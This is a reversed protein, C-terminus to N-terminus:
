STKIGSASAPAPPTTVPTQQLAQESSLRPLNIYFTSGRGLQSEVWIRGKYLEVIKRSIFLGLGTGGITRTSTNDVRYFKQFLHPLDQAPIGPGTDKVYIQVVKPDGTIGLSVKGTETYKVANDFLNTLVERMRDPDVLAHYLPRILKPQTSSGRTDITAAKQSNGYVYEMSLGKKEASFRLDECLHELFDGMEVPIPHSALRGDEAKASTLLDQFLKGLMQTSTHAKMLYDRARNDITSVKENLALALYGEIAAVPTRMEHSATSIFDARRQEEGREQSVDKFIAVAAYAEGSHDILPSVTINLSLIKQDKTLLMARNDRITQKTHFVQILPNQADPYIEGKDNQLKIISRHDLKVADKASWGTIKSAAPNFLMIIKERNIAVVGDEIANLVINSQSREKTLLTDARVSSRATVFEKAYLRSWILWGIIAAAWCSGVAIVFELTDVDAVSGLTLVLGIGATQLTALIFSAYPGLMGSFFVIVPLMLFFPSATGDTLGAISLFVVSLLVHTIFYALWMRSRRLVTIGLVGYLLVMGSFISPLPSDGIMTLMEPLLFKAVLYFLVMTVAIAVYAANVMRLWSETVHKM